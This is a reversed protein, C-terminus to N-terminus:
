ADLLTIDIYGMLCGGVEQTPVNYGMIHEIHEHKEYNHKRRSFFIQM